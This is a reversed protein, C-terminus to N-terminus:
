DTLIYNVDLIQISEIRGLDLSDEIDVTFICSSNAGIGYCPNSAYNVYNATSYQLGDTLMTLYPLGEVAFDNDNNLKIEFELKLTNNGTDPTFVFSLIEYSFNELFPPEILMPEEPEPFDCPVEMQTDYSYFQNGVNYYQPIVIIKTCDEDDDNSGCNTILINLLVLLVCKLATKM